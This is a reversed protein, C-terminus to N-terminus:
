TPASPRPRTVIVQRHPYPIEIGNAKFSEWLALFVEGKINTVGAEPDSIWFRLVLNISSDGFETIHCVPAPEASIRNATRAAAVALSRVRHLDADYAVGFKVQLRLNKDNHSWNIVQNLVFTDNPILLEKNDRTVVGVYRASMERVWGYTDGVEIVDGPKVSKDLLLFLGSVINSVQHQLGIGIGVGVAGTFVALAALNVGISTLTIVSAVAILAFTAIKGVLVRTRPTVSPISALRQNLLDAILFSAWMLVAMLAIGDVLTLLTLRGAGLPIGVGDLARIVIPLFGLINLAAVVWALWAIARAGLSDSVMSSSLRILMWAGTLNVAIWLLDRRMRIPTQDIVGIAVLLLVLFVFSGLLRRAAAIVRQPGAALHWERSYTTLPRSLGRQAVYAIAAFIAVLAAQELVNSTFVNRDAWELARQTVIHVRGLISSQEM